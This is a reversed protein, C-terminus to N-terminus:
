DLMYTEKGMTLVINFQKIVSKIGRLTVPYNLEKVTDDGPTATITILCEPFCPPSLSAYSDITVQM